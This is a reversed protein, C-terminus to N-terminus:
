QLLHWNAMQFAAKSLPCLGNAWTNNVCSQQKVSREQNKDHSCM